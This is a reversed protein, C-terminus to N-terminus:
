VINKKIATDASGVIKAKHRVQSPNFIFYGDKKMFQKCNFPLLSTLLNPVIDEATLRRM